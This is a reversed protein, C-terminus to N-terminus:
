RDSLYSFIIEMILLLSAISIHIFYVYFIVIMNEMRITIFSTKLTENDYYDNNNTLDQFWYLDLRDRDSLTSTTTTTSPYRQNQYFRRLYLSFQLGWCKQM